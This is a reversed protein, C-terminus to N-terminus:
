YRDAGYIQRTADKVESREKEIVPEQRKEPGEKQIIRSSARRLVRSLEMIRKPHRQRKSSWFEERM